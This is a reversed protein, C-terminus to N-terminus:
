TFSNGKVYKIVAPLSDAASRDNIKLDEQNSACKSHIKVKRVTLYLFTNFYFCDNLGFLVNYDGCLCLHVYNISILSEWALSYFFQWLSHPEALLHKGWAFSPCTAPFWWCSRNCGSLSWISCLKWRDSSIRHESCQLFCGSWHCRPTAGSGETLPVGHRAAWGSSPQSAQQWRERRGGMCSKKLDDAM